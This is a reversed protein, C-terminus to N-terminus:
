NSDYASFTRHPGLPNDPCQRNKNGTLTEAARITEEKISGLENTGLLGGLYKDSFRIAMKIVEKQFFKM